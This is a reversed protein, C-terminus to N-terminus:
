NIKKKKSRRVESWIKTATDFVRCANQPEDSDHGGICFIKQNIVTASHHVRPKSHDSYVCASIWRKARNDYIEVISTPASNLWGGIAFLVEYPLRPIALTPPIYDCEHWKKDDLNFLFRM